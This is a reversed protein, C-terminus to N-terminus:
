HHKLDGVNMEGQLEQHIIQSPEQQQTKKQAEAKTKKVGNNHNTVPGGWHSIPNRSFIFYFQLVSCMCVCMQTVVLLYFSLFFILLELSFLMLNGSVMFACGTKTERNLALTSEQRQGLTGLIPEPDAEVSFM